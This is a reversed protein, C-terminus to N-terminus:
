ITMLLLLQLLYIISFVLMTYFILFGAFDGLSLPAAIPIPREYATPLTSNVM